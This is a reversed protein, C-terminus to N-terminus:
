RIPIICKVRLRSHPPNLWLNRLNRLHNPTLPRDPATLRSHNDCAYQCIEKSVHLSQFIPRSLLRGM